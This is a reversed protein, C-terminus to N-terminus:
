SASAPPACPSCPSCRRPPSRSPSAGGLDATFHDYGADLLLAAAYGAMAFLGAHGLSDLGAYGVLVNLALALVAWLLIQSAINIYYTNGVWLPLTLSCCSRSPSRWRAAAHSRSM